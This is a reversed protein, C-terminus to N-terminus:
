IADNDTEAGAAVGPQADTQDRRFTQGIRETTDHEADLGECGDRVLRRCFRGEDIDEGIRLLFLDVHLPEPSFACDHAACPWQPDARNILPQSRTIRERPYAPRADLGV